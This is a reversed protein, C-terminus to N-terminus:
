KGLSLTFDLTKACFKKILCKRINHIPFHKICERICMMKASNSYFCVSVCLNFVFTSCCWLNHCIVVVCLVCICVCFNLYYFEKAVNASNLFFLLVLEKERKMMSWYVKLKQRLSLLFRFHSFIISRVFSCVSLRLFLYIFWVFLIHHILFISFRASFYRDILPWGALPFSKSM